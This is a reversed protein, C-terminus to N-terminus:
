RQGMDRDEPPPPPPIGENEIIEESPKVIDTTFWGVITSIITAGIKVKTSGPIKSIDKDVANIAAETGESAALGSSDALPVGGDYIQKAIDALDIAIGGPLLALVEKQVGTATEHFQPNNKAIESIRQQNRMMGFPSSPDKGDPDTYKYPNNNAYAYRNFSHVDRFGIPNNSYFRGIVSDCYRAQM